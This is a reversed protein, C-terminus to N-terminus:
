RDRSVKAVNYLYSIVLGEAGNVLRLNRSVAPAVVSPATSKFPQVWLLALLECVLLM